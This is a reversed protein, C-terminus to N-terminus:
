DILNQKFFNLDRGVVTNWSPQLNHDSGPYYYYKVELDLTKLKKVLSETWVPQVADDAGGQHIQFPAKIRNLYKDLSYLDTNYLEEFEALKKRLFKGGDEAEDTYYLISYPFPKSVPAWLVTPISKGTIELITLAMQGGNSHGWLFLNKKDYKDISDLSSLVNLATVYTQFRSEFVNESEIDSEGYGLFDPAVTIFGNDAFYEAGRKTGMGSQYIQQDVFGRLMLILPFSNGENPINIVGTTKKFNKQDMTPSFSLSFLYSTYKDEESLTREIVLNGKPATYNFLNEFAYKDLPRPIVKTVVNKQSKPILYHGLFSNLFWGLIILLLPVFIHILRKKM